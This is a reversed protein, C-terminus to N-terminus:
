KCDNCNTKLDYSPNLNAQQYQAYKNQFENIDKACDLFSKTGFVNQYICYVTTPPTTNVQQPKVPEKKCATLILLLPILKKM